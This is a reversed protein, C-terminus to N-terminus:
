RMASSIGLQRRAFLYGSGEEFREVVVGDNSRAETEFGERSLLLVVERLDGSNGHVELVLKSVGGLWAVDGRLMAFEAGEIDVKLFDITSVGQKLLLEGLELIPAPSSYHSGKELWSFRESSASEIGVVGHHIEVSQECGNLRLNSEIIPIFESQAEVSLVRAGTLAAMTTFLGVNAGLDVVTDGSNIVFGESWFYVARAYLERAGAFWEGDVLISGGLPSKFSYVRGAMKRDVVQLNGTRLVSGISVFVLALYKLFVRPGASRLVGYLERIFRRLRGIM